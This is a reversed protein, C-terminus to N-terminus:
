RRYSPLEVVYTDVTAGGGWDSGFVARTGTPSGTVHPEGWYDNPGEKGWSRHHGIRCVVTNDPNTNALLLEQDLIGAGATDGVISVFVWGPNRYIVASVHTSGPPYPYGTKPGVIVRSTGDTLDHVVLTGEASGKPGADFQVANYTDHGNALRGLSSHEVDPIDITRVVQMSTDVVHTDWRALLGSAGMSPAGYDSNATSSGAVTGTDMQYIFSTGNECQLGLFRADWSMWAHSDASAQSRCTSITHVTEKQDTAVHYRILKVGDIYYFIDPDTTDWYVQEIDPPSISVDKIFAYSKGDYIKHGHGVQYLLLYREDASWAQTPSYLPKIVGSGTNTIRRITTGFQPDKMTELLAPKALATMPHAAKDQVLGDCLNASTGTTGGSVASHGGGAVAGGGRGGAGGVVGGTGAKDGSGECGPLAMVIALLLASGSVFLPGRM